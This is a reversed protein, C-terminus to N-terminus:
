KVGVETVESFYEELENRIRSKARHLRSKVTGEKIGLHEAIEKESFGWYYKLIVVEMYKDDLRRIAEMLKQKVETKELAEEPFLFSGKIVPEAISVLNGVDEVSVSKARDGIKERLGDKAQNTAIASLWAEFKGPDKLQNINVFAKIFTEQTMDEALEKDQTIMFITKYVKEYHNEFLIHFFQQNTSKNLILKIISRLNM